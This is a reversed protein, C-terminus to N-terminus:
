VMTSVKADLFGLSSAPEEPVAAGEFGDELVFGVEAPFAFAPGDVLLVPEVLVRGGILFVAPAAAAGLVSMDNKPAGAGDVEVEVEAAAPLGRFASGVILFSGAPEVVEVGAAGAGM